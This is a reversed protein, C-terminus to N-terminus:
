RTHRSEAPPRARSASRPWRAPIPPTKWPTPPYSWARVPKWMASTLSTSVWRCLWTPSTMSRACSLVPRVARHAAQRVALHRAARRVARRVPGSRIELRITKRPLPGPLRPRLPATTLFRRSRTSRKRPKKSPCSRAPSARRCAATTWPSSWAARAWLSAKAPLSPPSPVPRKPPLIGKARIPSNRAATAPSM